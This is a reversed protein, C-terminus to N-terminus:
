PAQSVAERLAQKFADATAFRRSPDTHMATLIARELMPTIRPELASPRPTEGRRVADLTETESPRESPHTGTLLSYAAIGLGYIDVAPSHRAGTLIEPPIAYATGFCIGEDALPDHEREFLAADFDVLRPLGAADLLLNELKIDRHIIRDPAGQYPHIAQHLYSVADCVGYLAEALQRVDRRSLTDLSRPLYEEVLDQPSSSTRTRL